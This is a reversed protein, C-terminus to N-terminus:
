PVDIQEDEDYHDEADFGAVLEGNEYVGLFSFGGIDVNGLYNKIEEDNVSMEKWNYDGESPPDTPLFFFIDEFVEPPLQELAEGITYGTLYYTVPPPGGHREYEVYIVTFRRAKKGLVGKDKKLIDIRDQQSLEKNNEGLLNDILKNFYM